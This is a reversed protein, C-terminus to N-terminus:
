ADISENTVTILRTLVSDMTPPSNLLKWACEDDKITQCMQNVTRMTPVVKAYIGVTSMAGAEQMMEVIQHRLQVSCSDETNLIVAVSPYHNRKFADMLIAKSPVGRYCYLGALWKEAEEVVEQKFDCDVGFVIIGVPQSYETKIRGFIHGPRSVRSEEWRKDM